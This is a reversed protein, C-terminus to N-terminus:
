TNTKDAELQSLQEEEKDSSSVHVPLLVDALHHDQARCVWAAGSKVAIDVMTSCLFSFRSSSVNPCLTPFQWHFNMFVVLSALYALVKIYIVNCHIPLSVSTAYHPSTKVILSKIRLSLYIYMYLHQKRCSCYSDYVFYSALM